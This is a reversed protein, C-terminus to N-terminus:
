SPDSAHSPPDPIMRDVVFMMGLFPLFGGMCVGAWVWEGAVLLLVAGSITIGMGLISVVRLVVAIAPIRPGQISM